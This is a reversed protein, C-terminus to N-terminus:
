RWPLWGGLAAFIRLLIPPPSVKEIMVVSESNKYNPTIAEGEAIRVLNGVDVFAGDTTRKRIVVGETSTVRYLGAPPYVRGDSGWVSWGPPSPETVKFHGMTGSVCVPGHNILKLM